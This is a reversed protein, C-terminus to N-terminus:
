KPGLWTWEAGAANNGPAVVWGGDARVDIGPWPSFNGYVAAPPKRLLVNVGGSPTRWAATVFEGHEAILAKLSAEGAKGKKVDCDLVLLGASGPVIGVVVEFEDPVSTPKYPDALQRRILDRDHHADLHGHLMLPAKALTGDDKPWVAAALVDIGADIAADAIAHLRQLDDSM